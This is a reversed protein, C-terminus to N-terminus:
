PINELKGFTLTRGAEVGWARFGGIDGQLMPSLLGEKLVDVGETVFNMSPLVILDRGEWKGALFCKVKETRGEETLGVCPHEHGIVITKVGKLSAPEKHGHVFLTTGLTHEDAVRVNGKTAIPGIITDHNGRVLTVEYRRLEDLFKMVESWEQGSISGFEHKLDGDIIIREPKTQALVERLHSAIEKYQFMPVLIGDKNLAEEYGLHVDAFTLAEHKPIHLALGVAYFGPLIETSDM